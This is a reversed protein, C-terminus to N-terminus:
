RFPTYRLSPVWCETFCCVAAALVEHGAVAADLAGAETVEVRVAVGDDVKRSSSECSVWHASEGQGKTALMVTGVIM